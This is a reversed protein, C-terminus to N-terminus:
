MKINVIVIYKNIYEIARSIKEDKQNAKKLSESFGCILWNLTIKDEGELKKDLEAVKKLQEFNKQLENILYESM